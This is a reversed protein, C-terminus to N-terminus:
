AAYRTVAANPSEAPAHRRGGQAVAESAIREALMEHWSKTPVQTTIVTSSRDYRDELIELLDRRETDKLPAIFFDDLVLVSRGPCRSEERCSGDRARLFTDGMHIPCGDGMDAPRNTV